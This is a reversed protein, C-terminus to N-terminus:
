LRNTKFRYQEALKHMAKDFTYFNMSENEALGRFRLASAIHIADLSRCQALEKRAYIEREIKANLVMYNVSALFDNLLATKEDLWVSALIHKNTEHIRRLAIVTEIRLLISSVRISNQWYNYAEEQKKEDLVIALLISSDFYSFTM